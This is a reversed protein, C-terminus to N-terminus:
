QRFISLYFQQDFFVILIFVPYRNVTDIKKMNSLSIKDAHRLITVKFRAKMDPEDFCPFSKRADVPEM